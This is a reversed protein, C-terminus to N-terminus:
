NRQVGWRPNQGGGPLMRRSGGPVVGPLGAQVRGTEVPVNWVATNAQDQPSRARHTARVAKVLYLVSGPGAFKGKVVPRRGEALGQEKQPTIRPKAAWAQNNM